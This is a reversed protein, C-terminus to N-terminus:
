VVPCCLEFGRNGSTRGVEVAEDRFVHHVLMVLDDDEARTLGSLEFSVHWPRCVVPVVRRWEVDFGVGDRTFGDYGRVRTKLLLLESSARACCTITLM